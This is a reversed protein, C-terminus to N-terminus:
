EKSSTLPLAIQSKRSGGSSTSSAFCANARMRSPPWGACVYSLVHDALVSRAKHDCPRGDDATARVARDPLDDAGADINGTAFEIRVGQASTLVLEPSQRRAEESRLFLLALAHSTFEVVIQVLSHGHQCVIHGRQLLRRGAGGTEEAFLESRKALPHLLEGTVE